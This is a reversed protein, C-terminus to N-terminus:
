IGQILYYGQLLIYFVWFYLNCKYFINWMKKKKLGTLLWVVLSLGLAALLGFLLGGLFAAITTSTSHFASYDTFSTNRAYVLLQALVGLSIIIIVKQVSKM